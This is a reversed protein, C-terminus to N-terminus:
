RQVGRMSRDSERVRKRREYDSEGSSFLSMPNNRVARLREYPTEMQAARRQEALIEDLAQILAAEKPSGSEPIETEGIRRLAMQMASLEGGNVANPNGFRSDMSTGGQAAGAPARGAGALRLTHEHVMKATPDILPLLGAYVGWAEDASEATEIKEFAAGILEQVTKSSTGMGVVDRLAEPSLAGVKADLQTRITARAEHTSITKEWALMDDRFDKDVYDLFSADDTNEDPILLGISQTFSEMLQPDKLREIRKALGSVKQTVDAARERARRARLSDSLRSGVQAYITNIRPDQSLKGWVEDDPLGEYEGNTLRTVLADTERALEPDTEAMTRFMDRIGEGSIAYEGPLSQAVQRALTGEELVRRSAAAGTQAERYAIESDALRDQRENDRLSDATLRALDAERRKEDREAFGLNQEDLKLQRAEQREDRFVGYGFERERQGLESAFARERFALEAARARRQDQLQTLQLLQSVYQNQQALMPAVADGAGGVSSPMQIIPM